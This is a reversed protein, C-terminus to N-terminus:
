FTDYLGMEQAMRTLENLREIRIIRESSWREWIMHGDFRYEVNGEYLYRSLRGFTETKSKFIDKQVLGSIQKSM